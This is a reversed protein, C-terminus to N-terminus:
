QTLKPNSAKAVARRSIHSAIRTGIRASIGGAKMNTPVMQRSTSNAVVQNSAATMTKADEGRPAPNRTIPCTAANISHARPTKNRGFASM